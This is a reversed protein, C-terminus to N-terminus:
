RRPSTTPWSASPWARSSPPRAWAPSGSSCRTTRRAAPCCRCSGSSRKRAASSRTWSTTGPWRPSTAVSSTSCRRGPRRTRPSRAPPVPAWRSRARTVRLAAPDGAPPGPSSGRGPEPAGPRGRGRGRPGSRAAHARHRHLQSRAPAGRAAVARPGEQGPPHVAPVRDARHRGARHDGRGEGAGGGALRGTVRAGQGRCGRGRPDPGPPHARHRHLQPQAPAGGGTRACSSSSGPRHITRVSWRRWGRDTVSAFDVPAPSVRVRVAGMKRIRKEAM